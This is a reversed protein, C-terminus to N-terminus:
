REKAVPELVAGCVLARGKVPTLTVNVTGPSKLEIPLILEVVRKAGGALQFIDVRDARGDMVKVDFVRQSSATSTSDLLLLRLRYNGSPLSAAKGKGGSGRTMIPGLAFTFAKDNEVGTRCIEDRVAPVAFEKAGTEEEGRCEWVKRDPEFHFTFTGRSQALKDHQTPAFNVRVPELGLAQRHRIIHTLWRTNKSDVVGQEGRTIGGRASFKAFQEIVPEPRCGVMAARAGALDGKKLLEQSRQFKDHTQYFAAIFEELGKFYNVRERQEPTFRVADVREILALREACGTVVRTINTLPRDIFFDSTERAFNPADSVWRELYEGMTGRTAAGFSREAMEDCTARLPRDKTASWVQEAHSKFF